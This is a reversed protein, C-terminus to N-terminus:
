KARGNKGQKATYSIGRNEYSTSGTTSDLLLVYVPLFLSRNIVTGDVLGEDKLRSGFSGKTMKLSFKMTQAVTTVGDKVKGRMQFTDTGTVGKGKENLAFVQLVGGVDTIVQRGNVAYGAGVSQTWSLSISDKLPTTFNLKVSVKLSPMPLFAANPVNPASAADASSSGAVTEIEDPFRDGDTDTGTNSVPTEGGTGDSDTTASAVSTYASDGASNSARVRYYYTTAASLGSSSYATANAPVTAIASWGNVGDASREVTFSEENDSRDTWSLNIQSASVAAAILAAPAAPATLGGGGGGGGSGTGPSKFDLKVNQGSLTVSQTNTGLGGGSLSVNITGSSGVPIAYGGAAGTVAYYTGTDPTVTINPIGEGVDYFGNNNTDNYVVGVLFSSNGSTGFDQTLFNKFGQNNQVNGSFFGIGIERFTRGIDLLNKRHGRGNVNLDVMLNDELQAAGSSTSTAINEGATLITYGADVIRQDFTKGDPNTHAFFSRQWMDASHNRAATLLAKNMALPPRVGVNAAEQATLGERIDIGLRTGEAEPNARARNIIELVYQEEPSPDGSDYLTGALCLSSSLLLTLALICRLNLM